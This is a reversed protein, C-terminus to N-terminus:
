GLGMHGGQQAETGLLLEDLQDMTLELAQEALFGRRDLEAARCRDDDHHDPEVAGALRRRGRLQREVQAILAAPPRIQDRGVDVTRGGDLLELGEAPLDVNGDVRDRGPRVRDGDRAAAHGGGTRVAGVRHEDIGGAALGDVVLQHGLELAHACGHPRALDQEHGVGHGALVRDRRRLSEEGAEGEGTHDEGLDLAVGPHRRAETRRVPFGITKAPVPSFSSASSANWGSRM